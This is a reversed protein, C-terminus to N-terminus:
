PPLRRLAAALRIADSTLTDRRTELALALAAPLALAEGRRRDRAYRAAFDPGLRLSWNDERVTGPRNYPERYGFLDTFFLMVNRAPGVFLEAFKAQTLERPQAAVRAVWAERGDGAIGLREALYEAHARSRGARVWGETVQWLTPTDHSGPMVWDRPAANETRYVDTPDNLSVKQTVRFRGLAHREMVRQLPYPQTSLVECALNEPRRGHRLATAVLADFLAAYRDVQSPQLTAVWADAFRPLTRQLQEPRAIAFRALPAHDPLDPSDFLRAGAAVARAPDVSDSAYVWPCVLGHPHDIRVSDYEGFIKDLRELFFRVAPGAAGAAAYQDPDLVPYNWAQGAPNTRSPPAGMVYSELFLGAHSWVDAQSIGVQLDGFLKLGLAGAHRRLEGHQEHAVFQGFAYADLPESRTALIRAREAAQAPAWLGRQAAPWAKWHRGGNEAQLVAHLADRELWAAQDRRFTAFRGALAALAQEGRRRAFSEWVEDLAQRTAAAAHARGARDASRPKSSVARELTAPRLLAGWPEPETLSQLGISLENRSFLTGDYPSANRDSTRGQPGLQIGSFGLSRAFRLFDGGGHGYPSGRGVDEEPRGPFAPDHIGLLLNDIGLAHLAADVLGTEEDTL